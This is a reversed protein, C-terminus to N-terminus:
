GLLEFPTRLLLQFFRYGPHIGHAPGRQHFVNHLPNLTIFINASVFIRMDAKSHGLEFGTTLVSVLIAPIMKHFCAFFKEWHLSGLFIMAEKLQFEVDGLNIDVM